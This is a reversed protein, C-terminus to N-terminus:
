KRRRRRLLLGAGPMVGILATFLAGPAPVISISVNDWGMVNGQAGGAFFRIDTPLPLASASGGAMYWNTQAATTTTGTTLDTISVELIRNTNFDFTTSQRYWHNVDLNNWAAGPSQNNLAVNAADFVNYQANWNTATAVDAWTNLAIFSRATGPQLSFSGLNQASPLTGNYRAAFDYAVSWIGDGGSFNQTHQARAFANAAGSTGGLFQAGGNPNTPLGLTNGAYTYVLQDTGAPLTWGQQGTLLTGAASGSYTPSEFDYSTSQATASTALAIGLALLVGMSLVAQLLKSKM